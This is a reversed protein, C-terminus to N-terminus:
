VSSDSNKRDLLRIVSQCIERDGDLMYVGQDVVYDMVWRRIESELGNDWNTPLGCVECPHDGTQGVNVQHCNQCEKCTKYGFM